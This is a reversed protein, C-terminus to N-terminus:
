INKYLVKKTGFLAFLCGTIQTAPGELSNDYKVSDEIRVLKDGNDLIIEELEKYIVPLHKSIILIKSDSDKISFDFDILEKLEKQKKLVIVKIFPEILYMWLIRNSEEATLFISIINALKKIQADGSSYARYWDTTHEYGTDFLYLTYGTNDYDGDVTSFPVPDLFKKKSIKMWKRTMIMQIEFNTVNSVGAMRM